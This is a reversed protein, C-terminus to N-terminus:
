APDGLAPLGGAATASRVGDLVALAFAEAAFSGVLSVDASIEGSSLAFITDGDAMTHAPRITRALGDHAMQAVKATHAKSLRANSAVVGIVTNAGSTPELRNALLRMSDSFQYPPRDSGPQRAGAVIKGNKPNLVDGIPNVAVVAAVILDPGIRISANGLGSKMAHEPGAMKGLTAGSGAGVNGSAVPGTAARQAALYGMAADPRRDARGLFLDFLIAGPVLPVINPGIQYGIGQEELFRVVGDAASLGFASGGSLLIAHVEEVMQLPGLLDTERTGPAGGRQDVSAVTNPPCRIVTCGTLAEDDQAHGVLVGRIDTIANYM